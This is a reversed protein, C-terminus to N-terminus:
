TWAGTTGRIPDVERLGHEAALQRYDDWLPDKRIDTVFIAERRYAAAGWPGADPGIPAGDVADTFAKALSPAAGLRLCAADKDAVLIAAFIGSLQAEILRALHDLVNELPASAAILELIQAQAERLTKALERETVDDHTAVWGGDPLPQHCILITRGDRLRATWTKPVAALNVGNCWSLYEEVTGAPSTGVASRRESIERLTRGAAVDEPALGYIEPYRRNCLRLRQKADFVCVGQAIKDFAMEFRLGQAKLSAAASRHEVNLNASEIRRWLEGSAPFSEEAREGLLPEEVREERRPLPRGRRQRLAQELM